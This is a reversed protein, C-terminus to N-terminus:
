KVLNILLKQGKISVIMLIYKVQQFSSIGGKRCPHKEKEQYFIHNSIAGDAYTLDDTEKM